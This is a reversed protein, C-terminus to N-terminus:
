FRFFGHNLGGPHTKGMIHNIIQVYWYTTHIPTALGGRTGTVLQHMKGNGKELVYMDRLMIEKLKQPHIPLGVCIHAADLTRLAVAAVCNGHATM